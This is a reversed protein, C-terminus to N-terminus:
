IGHQRQPSYPGLRDAGEQRALLREAFALRVEVESLRSPAYARRQETEQLCRENQEIVDRLAHPVLQGSIRTAIAKALSAGVIIIAMFTFFDVCVSRKRSWRWPAHGAVALRNM